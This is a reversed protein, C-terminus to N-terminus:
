DLLGHLTKADELFQEETNDMVFELLAYRDDRNVHRLYEKWENVGESLPRRIGEKWYYVHLNLLRDKLLDIGETREAMNLAVTPQWLCYVNADGIERLFRMASENTDTLSNKHWEFAVKIGKSSALSSILRTEAALKKREAETVEASPKKGAWVRILPAKLAAASKVSKLFVTEPDDNEGLRYYSGYAAVSLGADRTKQYLLTAGDPDDPMVHANESWEVAKLDAQVCLELIREAKKERFTASVMGPRIM